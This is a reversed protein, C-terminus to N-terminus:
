YMHIGIIAKTFFLHFCLGTFKHGSLWNAEVIIIRIYKNLHKVQNM